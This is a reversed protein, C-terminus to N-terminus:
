VRIVIDLDGDKRLVEVGTVGDSRHFHLDVVAGGVRMGRLVVNELWEPLTPHVLELQRGPADARLGLMAQLFLFPAGAAWAQPSCAVPYPVPLPSEDRQFGCFLEPLRFDRFYRSAGLVKGILANAAEHHGYRKMGAAIIANDHPWVSGVHYGIPNFGPQDRALTRVGWGSDMEPTTLAAVVRAARDPAAIGSWLAHGANSAIADARRKERDLAMAYTGAEEMWFAREFRERLEAAGAVLRAALASEGRRAALEAMRRRADYVYGQVEVLAIPATVSRGDSARIADASDKWGQNILGHPARRQYEVFGDGDLDGYRDIWALAALANPWLRELLADDATWAYTEALLVLFLPTADVTGYYPVHPVEGAHAMEGNRLEHLIKGPEADRWPDDVTSQRRALLKLAEVAIRPSFALLELATIITDRGFVTSFWPIGAAVYHEGSDPGANVLLRLDARAREITRDFFADGTSVATMAAVWERHATEPEAVAVTPVAPFRRTPDADRVAVWPEHATWVTVELTVAAGPALTEEFCLTSGEDLRGPLSVAVFTSRVIGDLGRYGFTLRLGGGSAETELAPLLEGRRERVMGRVEFIDAGDASLALTLECHEPHATYNRVTIRERLAGSILRDRVIGLSQRRLVVEADRKSAPDRLFDPNTLQISGAYGDGSSSRLIVPRSGNLRLEYRSLVRTDDRYLGLGRSDAHIDGFADTLLYLNEHKLMLVGTLDTAREIPGASVPVARIATGAALAGAEPAELRGVGARTRTTGRAM